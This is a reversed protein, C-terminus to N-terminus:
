ICMCSICLSVQKILYDTTGDISYDDVVLLDFQDRSSELSNISLVTMELHNCTTFVVLTDHSTKAAQELRTQIRTCDAASFDRNHENIQTKIDSYPKINYERLAVGYSRMLKSKTLVCSGSENAREPHPSVALIDVGNDDVYVGSYTSIYEAFYKEHLNLNSIDFQDQGMVPPQLYEIQQLFSPMVYRSFSQIEERFPTLASYIFSKLITEKIDQHPLPGAPHTPDLSLHWIWSSLIINLASFCAVQFLKSKVGM